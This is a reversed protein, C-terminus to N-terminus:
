SKIIESMVFIDQMIGSDKVKKDEKYIFVYNGAQNAMTVNVLTQDQM